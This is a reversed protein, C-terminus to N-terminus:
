YLGKRENTLFRLISSCYNCHLQITAACEARLSYRPDDCVARHVNALKVVLPPRLILKVWHNERHTRTHAPFRKIVLGKTRKTQNSHSYTLWSVTIGAAREHARLFAPVRTPPIPLLFEDADIFAM